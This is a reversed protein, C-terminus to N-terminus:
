VRIGYSSFALSAIREGDYACCPADVDFGALIEAPSRYLRLVIQVCRYPYQGQATDAPFSHCDCSNFVGVTFQFPTGQACAHLM